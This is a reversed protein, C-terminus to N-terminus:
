NELEGNSGDKRNVTGKVLLLELDRKLFLLQHKDNRYLCLEGKAVKSYITSASINLFKSAQNAAIFRKKHKPKQASNDNQLNESM